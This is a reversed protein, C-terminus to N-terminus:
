GGTCRPTRMANIWSDKTSYCCRKETNDWRQDFSCGGEGSPSGQGYDCYFENNGDLNCSDALPNYNTANVDCCGVKYFCSGNDSTADPNYNLAAADTCGQRITVGTSSTTLQEMSYYDLPNTSKKAAVKTKDSILYYWVVGIILIALVFIIINNRNM